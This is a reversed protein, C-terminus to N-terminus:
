HIFSAAQRGAPLCTLVRAALSSIEVLQLLTGFVPQSTLYPRGM